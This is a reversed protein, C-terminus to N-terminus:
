PLPATRTPLLQAQLEWMLSLAVQCQMLHLPGAFFCQKNSFGTSTDPLSPRHYHTLTHTVTRSGRVCSPLRDCSSPIYVPEGSALSM